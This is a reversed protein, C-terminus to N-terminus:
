KTESKGDLQCHIYESSTELAEQGVDMRLVSTLGQKRLAPLHLARPSQGAINELRHQGQPTDPSLPKRGKGVCDQDTWAVESSTRQHEWYQQNEGSDLVRVVGSKQGRGSHGGAM